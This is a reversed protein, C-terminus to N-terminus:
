CWSTHNWHCGLTSTYKHSWHDELTNWNLNVKSQWQFAVPRYCWCTHNWDLRDLPIETYQSRRTHLDNPWTVEWCCEVSTHRSNNSSLQNWKYQLGLYVFVIITSMYLAHVTINIYECTQLASSTQMPSSNVGLLVSNVSVQGSAAEDDQWKLSTHISSQRVIHAQTHTHTHWHCELTCPVLWHVSAWSWPGKTPNVSNSFWEM